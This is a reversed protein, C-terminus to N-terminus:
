MTEVMEGYVLRRDPYLHSVLDRPLEPTAVQFFNLTYSWPKSHNHLDTAFIFSNRQSNQVIHRRRWQSIKLRQAPAIHCNFFRLALASFEAKM